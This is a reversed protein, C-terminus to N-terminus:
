NKKDTLLVFQWHSEHEFPSYSVYNKEGGNRPVSFRMGRIVTKPVTLGLELWVLLGFTSLMGGVFWFILSVGVSRTSEFVIWPAM